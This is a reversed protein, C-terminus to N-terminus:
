QSGWHEPEGAIAAALERYQECNEGCLTELKALQVEALDMRETAVYGEGMYELTYLNNPEIALAQQYYAMGEDVNGIKRNAYGIYTLATADEKNRVATLADLANEYYGALALARGQEILDKDELLSAQECIKKAKNYVMGEKCQVPEASGGSSGGDSAALAPFAAGAALALGLVMAGATLRRPM